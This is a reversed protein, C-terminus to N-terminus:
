TIEGRTRRWRGTSRIRITAMRRAHGAAGAAADRHPEDAARLGARGRGGAGYVAFRVFVGIPACSSGDRLRCRRRGRRRDGEGGGCDEGPLAVPVSIALRRAATTPCAHGLRTDEDVHVGGRDRVHARLQLDGPPSPFSLGGATSRRKSSRTAAAAAHPSRCPRRDPPRPSHAGSTARMTWAATVEARGNAGRDTGVWLDVTREARATSLVALASTVDAPM